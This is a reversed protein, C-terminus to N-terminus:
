SCDGRAQGLAIQLKEWDVRHKMLYKGNLHFVPIDFQYLRGWEENGAVDICCEVLTIQMYVM